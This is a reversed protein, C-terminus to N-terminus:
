STLSVSAMVTTSTTRTIKRNRRLMEAVNIGLRASGEESTPVNLVVGARAAGDIEAAISVAYVPLGYLFNVTGDIPDVVWCVQGAVVATGGTEEGLVSEGHRLASLRARVLREVALDAATVVDTRSSKTGVDKIASPRASLALAAAERAVSVAVDLLVEM